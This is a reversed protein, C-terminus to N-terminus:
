YDLRTPDSRSAMFTMCEELIYPVSQYTHLAKGSCCVTPCWFLGLSVLFPSIELPCLYFFIQFFVNCLSVAPLELGLGLGLGLRLGFELGRWGFGSHDADHARDFSGYMSLGFFSEPLVQTAWRTGIM